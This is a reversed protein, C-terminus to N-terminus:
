SVNAQCPGYWNDKQYPCRLSPRGNLTFELYSSTEETLTGVSATTGQFKEVQANKAYIEWLSDATKKIMIDAAADVQFSKLINTVQSIESGSLPATNNPYLSSSDNEYVPPEDEAHAALTPICFCSAVACGLVTACIQRLYRNHPTTTNFTQKM